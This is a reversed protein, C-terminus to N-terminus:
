IHTCIHMVKKFSHWKVKYSRTTVTQGKPPITFSIPVPFYPSYLYPFFSNVTLTLIQGESSIDEHKKKKTKNKKRERGASSLAPSPPPLQPLLWRCRSVSSPESEVPPWCPLSIAPPSDVWSIYPEEGEWCGDVCCDVCCDIDPTDFEDWNRPKGASLYM